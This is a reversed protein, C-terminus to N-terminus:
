YLSFFQAYANIGIHFLPTYVQHFLMSNRNQYQVLPRCSAVAPSAPPCLAEGVPKPLKHSQVCSRSWYKIIALLLVSCTFQVHAHVCVCAYRFLQLVTKHLFLIQKQAAVATNGPDHSFASAATLLLSSRLRLFSDLGVGAWAAPMNCSMYVCCLFGARKCNLVGVFLLSTLM